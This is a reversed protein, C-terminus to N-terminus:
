GPPAGPVASPVPQSPPPTNPNTQAPQAKPGCGAIMYVLPLVLIAKLLTKM